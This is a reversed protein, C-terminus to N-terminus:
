AAPAVAGLAVAVGLGQPGVLVPGLDDGQGAPEQGDGIQLLTGVPGGVCRAGGHPGGFEGCPGARGRRRGDPHGPGAQEGLVQLVAGVRHPRTARLPFLHVHEEAEEPVGDVGVVDVQAIM